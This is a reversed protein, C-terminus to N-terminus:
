TKEREQLLPALGTRLKDFPPSTNGWLRIGSVLHFRREPLPSLFCSVPFDVLGM